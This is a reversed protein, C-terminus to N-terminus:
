SRTFFEAGCRLCRRGHRWGYRLVRPDSKHRGLWCLIDQVWKM